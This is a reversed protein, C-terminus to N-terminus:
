IIYKLAFDWIPSTNIVYEKSCICLAANAKGDNTLFCTLQRQLILSATTNDPSM